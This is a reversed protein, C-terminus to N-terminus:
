ITEGWANKIIKIKLPISVVIADFCLTYNTYKQNRQIFLKASNLVRQKNKGSIATKAKAETKRYKVEVFHISKKKKAIIDIEGFKTKYRTKLISYGRIILFLCAFYETLIGKTYSTM